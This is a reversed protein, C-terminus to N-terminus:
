EDKDSEEKILMQKLAKVEERLEEMESKLKEIDEGNSGKAKAEAERGYSPIPDEEKELRYKEFIPRDLQSFGMTKTYIYPANENKFTISTGPAVPYNRAVDESPVSVFGGNQIQPMMANNGQRMQQMQPYMQQPQTYSPQQYMNDYIGM